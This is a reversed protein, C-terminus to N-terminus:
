LYKIDGMQNTVSICIRLFTKPGIYIRTVSISIKKHALNTLQLSLPTAPQTENECSPLINM